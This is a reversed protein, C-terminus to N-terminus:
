NSSFLPHFQIAFYLQTLELFFPLPVFFFAFTECVLDVISPCLSESAPSTSLPHLHSELVSLFFSSFYLLHPILFASIAHIEVMCCSSPSEKTNEQLVSRYAFLLQTLYDDWDHRKTDCCKAIIRILTSNLSEM